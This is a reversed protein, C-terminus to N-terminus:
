GQTKYLKLIIGLTIVVIGSITGLLIILSNIIKIVDLTIRSDKLNSYIMLVIQALILGTAIYLFKYYYNSADNSEISKFYISTVVIYYIINFLIFLYPSWRSLTSILNSWISGSNPNPNPNPNLIMLTLVVAGLISYEVILANLATETKAWFITIIIALVLTGAIGNLVTEYAM